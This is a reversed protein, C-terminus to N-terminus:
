PPLDFQSRLWSFGTSGRAARRSKGAGDAHVPRCSATVAMPGQGASDMNRPRPTRNPEDHRGNRPFSAYRRASRDRRRVRVDAYDARHKDIPRHQSSRNLRTLVGGALVSAHSGLGNDSERDSALSLAPVLWPGGFDLCVLFDEGVDLPPVVGATPMGAQAIEARGAIFGRLHGNRPTLYRSNVM